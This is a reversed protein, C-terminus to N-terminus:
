TAQSGESREPHVSLWVRRQEEAATAFAELTQPPMQTRHCALDRLLWDWWDRADFAFADPVAATVRLPAHWSLRSEALLLPARLPLAAVLRGVAMHDAHNTSGHNEDFSLVLDPGFEDIVRTFRARLAEAGGADGAWARLVGEPTGASLDRCDAFWVEGGFLAAADRMEQERLAALDCGEHLHCGGADGRTAVLFGIAAGRERLCGLLPAVFLEDDPHAGIWLVRRASLDVEQDEAM